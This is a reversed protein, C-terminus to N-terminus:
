IVIDRSIRIAPAPVSFCSEGQSVYAQLLEATEDTMIAPHAYIIVKYESLEELTTTPQLTVMDTPIHRYQLQKYWSRVSQQQLPGHWEDM